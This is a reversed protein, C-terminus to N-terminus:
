CKRTQPETRYDESPSSKLLIDIWAKHEEDSLDKLSFSEEMITKLRKDKVSINYRLEDVYASLVVEIGKELDELNQFGFIRMITAIRKLLKRDRYFEYLSSILTKKIIEKQQPDTKRPIM